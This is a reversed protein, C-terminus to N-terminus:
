LDSISFFGGLAILVTFLNLVILLYISHPFIGERVHLMPLSGSMGEQRGRAQSHLTTCHCALAPHGVAANSVPPLLPFYDTTWLMQNQLEAGVGYDSWSTLKLCCWCGCCACGRSSSPGLWRRISHAVSANARRVNGGWLLSCNM